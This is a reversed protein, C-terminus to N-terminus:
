RTIPKSSFGLSSWAASARRIGVFDAGGHANVQEVGIHQDGHKQFVGFVRRGAVIEALVDQGFHGVVVANVGVVEDVLVLFFSEVPAVHSREFGIVFGVHVDHRDRRHEVEVVRVPRDAGVLALVRRGFKNEGFGAAGARATSEMTEAPQM